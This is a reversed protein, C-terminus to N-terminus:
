KNKSKKKIKFLEYNIYEALKAFKLFLKNNKIVTIKELKSFNM